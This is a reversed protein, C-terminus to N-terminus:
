PYKHTIPNSLAAKCSAVNDSDCRWMLKKIGLKGCDSMCRDVLEHTVGKGRAKPTVAILVFGSRRSGLNPYVDIFGRGKIVHRYLVPVNKYTGGRPCVLRKEEDSLSKFIKLADRYSKQREISESVMRLYSERIAYLERNSFPKM